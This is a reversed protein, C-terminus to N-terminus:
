WMRIWNYKFIQDGINGSFAGDADDTKRIQTEKTQTQKHNMWPHHGRILVTGEIESEDSTDEGYSSESCM